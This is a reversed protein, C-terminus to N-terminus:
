AAPRGVLKCAPVWKVSGSKRRHISVRGRMIRIADKAAEFADNERTFSEGSAAMKRGNRSLLRWRYREKKGRRRREPYVEITPRAPSDSM